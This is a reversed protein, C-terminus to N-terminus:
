GSGEGCGLGAAGVAPFASCHTHTHVRDALLATDVGLQVAVIGSAAPLRPFVGAAVLFLVPPVVAVVALSRSPNHHESPVRDRSQLHPRAALQLVVAVVLARFALEVLADGLEVLASCVRGDAAVLALAGLLLCGAEALLGLVVYHGGDAVGVVPIEADDVLVAPLSCSRRDDDFAVLAGVAPIRADAGVALPLSPRGGAVVLLALVPFAQADVLLVAAVVVVLVVVLVVVAVVVVVVVVVVAVVLLPLPIQLPLLLFALGVLTQRQVRM